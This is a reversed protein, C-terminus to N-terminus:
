KSTEYTAGEKGEHDILQSLHIWNPHLKIVVLTILYKRHREITKSSYPVLKTLESIPLRRKQYLSELCTQNKILATAIELLIKKTKKHTPTYQELEEFVIGFKVLQQNLALIEEIIDENKQQSEHREMSTEIEALTSESEPNHNFSLHKEKHENKFYDVLDRKIILYVYNLFTRGQNPKYTDIAKNLAILGISTEDDSWTVFRKCIKSVVNIVYPKYHQILLEREIENGQNALKLSENLQHSDKM